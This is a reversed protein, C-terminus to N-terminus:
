LLKILVMHLLINSIGDDYIGLFLNCKFLSLRSSRKRIFEGFNPYTHNSNRTDDNLYALLFNRCM